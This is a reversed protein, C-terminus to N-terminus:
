VANLAFAILAVLLPRHIGQWLPGALSTFHVLLLAFGGELGGLLLALLAALPLDARIQARWSGVALRLRAAYWLLAVPGALLSLLMGAVFELRTHVLWVLLWCLLALLMAELLAQWARARLLVYRISRM